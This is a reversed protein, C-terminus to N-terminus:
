RSCSDFAQLSFQFASAPCPAPSAGPPSSSKQLPYHPWRSPNLPGARPWTSQFGEACPQASCASSQPGGAPSLLFLFWFSAEGLASVEQQSLGLAACREEEWEGEASSQAPHVLVDVGLSRAHKCVGHTGDCMHENVLLPGLPFTSSEEGRGGRKIAGGREAPGAGKDTGYRPAKHRLSAASGIECPAKDASACPTRGDSFLRLIRM